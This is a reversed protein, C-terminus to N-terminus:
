KAMSCYTATAPNTLRFRRFYECLKGCAAKDHNTCKDDLKSLDADSLKGSGNSVLQSGPKHSAIVVGNPKAPTVSPCDGTVSGDFTKAKDFYRKAADSHGRQCEIKARGKCAEADKSKCAQEFLAAALNLNKEVLAGKEYLVGLERLQAPKEATMTCAERLEQAPDAKSSKGDLALSCDSTEQWGDSNKCLKEHDALGQCAAETLSLLYKPNPEAEPATAHGRLRAKALALCSASDSQDCGAQFYRVSIALSDKSRQAAHHRGIEFCGRGGEQRKDCSDQYYSPARVSDSIAALRLCAPLRGLAGTRPADRCIDELLKRGQQGSAPDQQAAPLLRQEAEKFCASWLEADAHRQACAAAYAGLVDRSAGHSAVLMDGYTECPRGADNRCAKRCAELSDQPNASLRKLPDAYESCQQRALRQDIVRWLPPLGLIPVVSLWLWRRRPMRRASEILNLSASKIEGLMSGSGVGSRNDPRSAAGVPQAARRQGGFGPMSSSLSGSLSGSLPQSGEVPNRLQALAKRAASADEFRKDPASALCHPFWLDFNPPLWDMCGYEHARSMASPQIKSVIEAFLEATNDKNAARFYHRGTFMWFALLGLAWVDTKVTPVGGTFQEPAAWKPTGLAASKDAGLKALGFDILKILPGEGYEQDCVFVNAPTLDRHAIAQGHAEELAACIQDLIHFVEDRRFPAENPKAKKRAAAESALDRGTLLEMAIYPARLKADEGFDLIRVVHPGALKRTLPAEDAFRRRMDADSCYEEKLLKIACPKGERDTAEWIEGVGGVKIRRKLIFGPGLVTGEQINHGMAEM